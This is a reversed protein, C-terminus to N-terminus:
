RTLIFIMNLTRELLSQTTEDIDLKRVFGSIDPKKIGRAKLDQEGELWVGSWEFWNICYKCADRISKFKVFANIFAKGSRSYIKAYEIALPAWADIGSPKYTKVLRDFVLEKYENKLLTM